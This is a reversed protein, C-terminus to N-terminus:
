KRQFKGMLEAQGVIRRQIAKELQPRKVAGELDLASASLAYITFNYRHTGSPPAPGGYGLGGFDNIGQQTGNAQSKLPPFAEPFVIVSAPINYVLWHTFTGGPADPDDCILAFSKTGPPPDKWELPPSVDEGDVTYHAPIDEGEKFARSIIQFALHAEDKWEGRL